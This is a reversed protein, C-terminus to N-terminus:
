DKEKEPEPTGDSVCEINVCRGDTFTANYEIWSGDEDGCDYFLITGHFDVEGIQVPLSSCTRECLLRGDVTIRYVSLNCGLDKTQFDERPVKLPMDCRITDFMGM